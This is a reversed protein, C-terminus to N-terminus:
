GRRTSTAKCPSALWSVLAERHFLLRKGLRQHPIVGRGAYDYVTNRDVGLFAAVEDATMAEKATPADPLPRVRAAYVRSRPAALEGDSRSRLYAAFGYLAGAAIANVLDRRADSDLVVDANTSDQRDTGPNGPDDTRTVSRPLLVLQPATKM